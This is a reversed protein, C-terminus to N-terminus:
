QFLNKDTIEDINIFTCNYIFVEEQLHASMWLHGVKVFCTNCSKYLSLLIDKHLTVRLSVIMSRSMRQIVAYGHSLHHFWFKRTGFDKVFLHM